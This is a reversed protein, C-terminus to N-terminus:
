TLKSPSKCIIPSFISLWFVVLGLLKLFRAFGHFTSTQDVELVENLPITQALPSM